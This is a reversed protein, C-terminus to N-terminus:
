FYKQDIVQFQYQGRSEVVTFVTERIKNADGDFKNAQKEITYLLAEVEFPFFLLNYRGFQSVGAKRALQLTLEPMPGDAPVTRGWANYDISEATETKIGRTFDWAMHLKNDRGIVGVRIGYQDLWAAFAAQSTPEFRIKWREWRPVREVVGDGGPGAQRADGLGEGKGAETAADIAEDSLMAENLSLADLADLTDQLQPESLEPADQVGPPEPEEAIGQNANPSTAEVPVFEIAQITDGFKNSFFVISLAAVGTGVMMLLAILLTSTRDFANVRLAYRPQRTPTDSSATAM